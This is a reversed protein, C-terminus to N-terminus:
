NQSTTTDGAKKLDDYKSKELETITRNIREKKAQELELHVVKDPMNELNMMIQENMRKISIDNIYEMGADSTVWVNGYSTLDINEPLFFRGHEMDSRLIRKKDFYVDIVVYQKFIGLFRYIINKNKMRLILFEYKQDKSKEDSQMINKKLDLLMQAMNGKIFLYRDVFRILHHGIYLYGNIPIGQNDIKSKFGNKITKEFSQFQFDKYSDKKSRNLFLYIIYGFGVILALAVIYWYRNLLVLLSSPM